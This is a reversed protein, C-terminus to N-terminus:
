KIIRLKRATGNSAPTMVFLSLGFEMCITATFRKLSSATPFFGLIERKTDEVHRRISAETQDTPTSGTKMCLLTLDPAIVMSVQLSPSTLFTVFDIDSFHQLGDRSQFASAPHTHQLLVPVLPASEFGRPPKSEVVLGMPGGQCVRGLVIKRRMLDLYGYRGYELGNGSLKLMGEIGTNFPSLDIFDPTSLVSEKLTYCQFLAEKFDPFSWTVKRGPGKDEQPKDTNRPRSRSFLPAKKLAEWYDGVSIKGAELM